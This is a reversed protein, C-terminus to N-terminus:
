DKDDHKHGRYHGYHRGHDRKWQEEDIFYRGAREYVVIRRLEARAWPRRYFRGGDYYVTIVRYGGRKWWGDRGRVREVVIVERQPVVVTTGRRAAAAEKRAEARDLLFESPTRAPTQAALPAAILGFALGALWGAAISGKM